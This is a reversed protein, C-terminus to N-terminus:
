VPTLKHQNGILSESLLGNANVVSHTELEFHYYTVTEYDESQYINNNNILDIARFMKNNVIIRHLPSVGIDNFPINEGFSGAKIIIPKSQDTLNSRSFTGIFIVKLSNEGNSNNVIEREDQINGFISVEDGLVMDEINKYGDKTLIKTGKLYCIIIDTDTITNTDLFIAGNTSLLSGNIVAGYNATISTLALIHGNFISSIGLIGSSGIQWFINSAKVGGSLQIVSNNNTTLTTGIKFIFQDTESGSLILTGNITLTTGISYVDPTLTENNTTAYSSGSLLYTTDTTSCQNYAITLDEQAIIAADNAINLSGSYTGPPFGTVTELYAGPSLGVDGTLISPGTNAIKTSALAAYTSATGLNISM